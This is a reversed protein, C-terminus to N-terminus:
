CRTNAGAQGQLLYSFSSRVIVDLQAAHPPPTSSHSWPALVLQKYTHLDLLAHIPEFQMMTRVAQTEMESFATPGSYTVSCPHASTSEGGRVGWDLAQVARRTMLALPHLVHSPWPICCM